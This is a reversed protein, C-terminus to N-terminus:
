GVLLRYDPHHVQLVQQAAVLHNEQVLEIARKFTDEVSSGTAGRCALMFELAVRVSDRALAFAHRGLEGELPLRDGFQAETADRMFGEWDVTYPTRAINLVSFHDGPVAGLKDASFVESAHGPRMAVVAVYHRSQDLLEAVPLLAAPIVMDARDLLLLILGQSPLSREGVDAVFSALPVADSLAAFEEARKLNATRRAERCWDVTLSPPVPFLVEPICPVITDRSVILGKALFREALSLALLTTAKKAILRETEKSYNSALPGLSADKAFTQFDAALALHVSPGDYSVKLFRFLTTKGV